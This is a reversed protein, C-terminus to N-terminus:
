ESAWRFDVTSLKTAGVTINHKQAQGEFTALVQYNGAPIKTLVWPGESTIDLLTKGATNVVAVQVDSLYQGSSLAFVLKLNFEPALSNLRDISDLGVGGSVYSVGDSTRLAEDYNASAIPILSASCLSIVALGHALTKRKMGSIQKM